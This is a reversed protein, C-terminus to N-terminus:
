SPAIAPQLRDFVGALAMAFFLSVFVFLPWFARGLAFLTLEAM